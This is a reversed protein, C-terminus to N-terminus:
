TSACAQFPAVARIFPMFCGIFLVLSLIVDFIILARRKKGLLFASLFYAALRMLLQIFFFLFIQISYPNIARADDFHFRVIASFGRSLGKSIAQDANLIDSGSPIPYNIGSGFVLSYGFIILIIIAFVLCIFRYPDTSSLTKV